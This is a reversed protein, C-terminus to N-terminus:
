VGACGQEDEARYGLRLDAFEYAPPDDSVTLTDREAM